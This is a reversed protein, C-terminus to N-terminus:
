EDGADYDDKDERENYWWQAESDTYLKLIWSDELSIFTKRM